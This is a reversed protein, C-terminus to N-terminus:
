IVLDFNYVNGRTISDLWKLKATGIGASFLIRTLMIIDVNTHIPCNIPDSMFVWGYEVNWNLNKCPIQVVYNKTLLM